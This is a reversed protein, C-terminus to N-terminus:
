NRFARRLQACKEYTIPYDFPPKFRPKFRARPPSANRPVLSSLLALTQDSYAM